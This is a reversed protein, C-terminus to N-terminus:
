AERFGYAKGIYNSPKQKKSVVSSNSLEFECVYAQDQPNEMKCMQDISLNEFIRGFPRM